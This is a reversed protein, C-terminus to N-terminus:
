KISSRWGRLAYPWFLVRRMVSDYFRYLFRTLRGKFSYADPYSARSGRTEEIISGGGQALWVLPRDLGYIDMGNAWWRHIEKDVAHGFKRRAAFELFKEAGARSVVYALAGMQAYGVRGMKYDPTLNRSFVFFEGRKFKRHLFVFDFPAGRDEIAALVPGLDPSLDLDDEFIAMMDEGSKLLSDMARVHSFYCGLENDSLPYVSVRKRSKPDLAAKQEQTLFQGDTASLREYPLGVSAFKRDMIALRDDSRDLNILLCKM